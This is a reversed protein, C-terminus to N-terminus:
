YFLVTNFNKYLATPNGTVTPQLACYYLASDSVAASSILLDVRKNDKNDDVEASMRPPPNPSLAGTQYIYLLFEPKSEPYQRYWNLYNNATASSPKYNCSLTVNVGEDVVVRPSLPQISDAMSDGLSLWLCMFIVTFMKMQLSSKADRETIGQGDSYVLFDRGSVPMTQSESDGNEDSPNQDVTDVPDMNRDQHVECCPRPHPPKAKTVHGSGEDILLLFEPRSGPKQQYWHLSYVSGTYTCSLTINSGETVSRSPKEPKISNDAAEAIDAITFFLLFLLLM